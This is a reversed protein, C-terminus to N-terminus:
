QANTASGTAYEAGKEGWQDVYAAYAKEVDAFGEAQIAYASVYVSPAGDGNINWDLYTTEGKEVWYLDGNPAIDVHADLYVDSLCTTTTKGVALKGNYLHTYVNYTRGDIDVEKAVKYDVNWTEEKTVGNSGEPLLGKAIASDVFKQQNYYDDWFAGPVNMHLVNKSADTNDLEVPIAVTIWVWADNKGSNYISARKELKKGPILENDPFHENLEIEVNGMTFVNKASDRDTLYALTTGAIATLVLIAALSIALAKKKM